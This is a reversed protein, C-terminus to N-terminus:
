DDKLLSYSKQTVDRIVKDLENSSLKLLELMESTDDGPDTHALLETLGMIRALPARVLHSQMWSIEKFRKNQDEITQLYVKSETVDRGTICAGTVTGNEFVPTMTYDIYTFQGNADPYARYYKVVEGNYSKQLLQKFIHYRSKEVFDFILRDAEFKGAFDNLKVYTDAKSNFAKIMYNADLLVFGDESSEFIARLNAESEKTKRDADFIELETILQETIDSALVLRVNRGDLNLLNSQVDVYIIEGNKKTHQVKGNFFVGTSKNEAVLKEIEYIDEAPRIQRITMSLFENKSYGYHKIAANNVDLFALTDTDFVWMPLPSKDFISKYREQLSDKNVITSQLGIFIKNILAVLVITLFILNSSFAIWAGTTYIKNLASNFLNFHIILGFAAIIITNILITVYAWKVRLTLAALITIGFLYFIGPGIYGLTNILFVSLIYFTIIVLLKRNRLSVNLFTALLILFFSILDVAALVYVGSAFSMILGPILALLCFPLCYKLFSIFLQDKWYALPDNHGVDNELPHGAIAEEYKALWKDILM